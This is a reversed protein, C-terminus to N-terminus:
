QGYEERIEKILKEIDQSNNVPTLVMNLEHIVTEFESQHSDFVELISEEDETNSDYVTILECYLKYYGEFVEKKDPDDTELLAKIEKTETCTKQPSKQEKLPSFFAKDIDQLLSINKRYATVNTNLKEKLTKIKKKTEAPISSVDDESAENLEKLSNEINSLKNEFSDPVSFAFVGRSYKLNPVFGIYADYENSFSRYDPWVNGIKEDYAIIKSDASDSRRNGVIAFLTILFVAAVIVIILIKKQSFLKKPQTGYSGGQNYSNPTYSSPRYSGFFRPSQPNM